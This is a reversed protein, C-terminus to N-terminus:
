RKIFKGKKRSIVLGNAAKGVPQGSLNFLKEEKQDGQITPPLIGSTGKAFVLHIAQKGLALNESNRKSVMNQPLWARYPSFQLGTYKYFGLGWTSKYSLVYGNNNDSSIYEPTPNGKLITAENSERSTSHFAYTGVPGYVVYGKNANIVKIVDVETLTMTLNKIIATSDQTEDATAAYVKVDEPITRKRHSYFFPSNM